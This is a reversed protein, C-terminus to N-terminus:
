NAYSGYFNCYFVVLTNPIVFCFSVASSYIGGGLSASIFKSILFRAHRSQFGSLQCLGLLGLLVFSFPLWFLAEWVSGFVRPRRLLKAFSSQSRPSFPLSVIRGIFPPFPFGRHPLGLSHIFCVIAALAPMLAPLIGRMCLRLSPSREVFFYFPPYKLFFFPLSGLLIGPHVYSFNGLFRLNFSNRSLFFARGLPFILPDLFTRPTGPPFVVPIWPGSLGYYQPQFDITAWLVYVSYSFSCVKVVHPSGVRLEWLILFWPVSVPFIITRVLVLFDRSLVACSSIPPFFFRM